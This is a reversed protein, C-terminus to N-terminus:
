ARPEHKAVFAHADPESFGYSSVLARIKDEPSRTGLVVLQLAATRKDAQTQKKPGFSRTM